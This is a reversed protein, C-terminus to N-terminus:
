QTRSLLASWERSRSVRADDDLLRNREVTLGAEIEGLRIRLRELSRRYTECLASFSSDLPLPPFRRERAAKALAICDSLEDLRAPTMVTSSELFENIVQIARQMQREASDMNLSEM